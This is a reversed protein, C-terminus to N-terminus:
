ACFGAPVTCTDGTAASGCDVTTMSLRSVEDGADNQLMSVTISQLAAVQSQLSLIMSKLTDIDDKLTSCATADSPSISGQIKAGVFAQFPTVITGAITNTVLQQFFPGSTLFEWADRGSQQVVTRLKDFYPGAVDIVTVTGAKAKGLCTATTQCIAQLLDRDDLVERPTISTTTPQSLRGMNNMVHINDDWEEPLIGVWTGPALQHWRYEVGDFSAMMGHFAAPEQARDSSKSTDPTISAANFDQRRKHFSMYLPPAERRTQVSTHIVRFSHYAGVLANDISICGDDANSLETGPSCDNSSYFQVMTGDDVSGTSKVLVGEALGVYDQRCGQDPGGIWSDIFEGACNGDLYFDLKFASTSCVFLLLCLQLAHIAM